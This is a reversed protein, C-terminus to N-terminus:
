RYIYQAPAPPLTVTAGTFRADKEMLNTMKQWATYAPNLILDNSNTSLINYPDVEMGSKYGPKRSGAPVDNTNSTDTNATSSGSMMYYVIVGAVLLLAGIAILKGKM